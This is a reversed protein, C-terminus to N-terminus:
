LRAGPVRITDRTLSKMFFFGICEGTDLRAAVTARSLQDRYPWRAQWGFFTLIYRLFSVPGRASPGPLTSVKACDFEVM